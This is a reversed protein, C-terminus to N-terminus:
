RVNKEQRGPSLDGPGSANGTAEADAWSTFRRSAPCLFSAEGRQMEMFLSQLMRHDRSGSSYSAEHLARDIKDFVPGSFRFHQLPLLISTSGHLTIDHSSLFLADSRWKLLAPKRIVNYRPIRLGLWSDRRHKRPDEAKLQGFRDFLRARAGAYLMKPTKASRLRLHPLGDFFWEGNLDIEPDNRKNALVKINRPYVDLMVAWAVDVGEDELRPLLDQFRAGYPLHLFEDADVHVSWRGPTFRAHLLSRWIYLIRNSAMTRGIDDPLKVSDGYRHGSEVLVCDAQDGVLDRTGDTSRDDLRVFREVGLSRYHSLFAPLFHMEDRMIAILTLADRDIGPDRLIRLDDLDGLPM